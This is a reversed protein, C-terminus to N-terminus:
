KPLKRFMESGFYQRITDGEKYYARYTREAKQFIKKQTEYDSLLALSGERFFSLSKINKAYNLTMLIFTSIAESPGRCREGVTETDYGALEDMKSKMLTLYLDEKNKFYLYLGGTSINSAKAIM